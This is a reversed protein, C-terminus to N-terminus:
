FGIKEKRLHDAMEKARGGSLLLDVYVQIPSALWVSRVREKFLFDGPARTQVVQLNAGEGVLRADLASIVQDADQGPTMRCTVQSIASLYPAYRQAAAEQTVAYEVQYQECHESLRSVLSEGSAGPVYYRRYSLHRPGALVQTKWEDLLVRPETLCREKSPGQGRSIIWESRELAALTESATGVSVRALQALDKVSLWKGPSVLLAHVVQSRKGRFLSRVAKSLTKPAPKDVYVYAGRAPIFLSGGTDYFGVDEQKLLDRAGASISEAAVLPIVNGRRTHAHEGATRRRFQWLIERAERPYVTKKFEVLLVYPKGAVDIEVKADVRPDHQPGVHWHHGRPQVDPLESLDKLLKRVTDWNFQPVQEPM